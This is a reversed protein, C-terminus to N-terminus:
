KSTQSVRAGKVIAAVSQLATVWADTLGSVESVVGRPWSVTVGLVSIPDGTVPRHDHVFSDVVLPYACPVTAGLGDDMSDRFPSAGFRGGDNDDGGLDFRGLYNFEVSASGLGGLVERGRPNLYRLSGYSAGDGPVASRSRRAGAVLDRVADVSGSVVADFQAARTAVRIPHVDTLWGVVGVGDVGSTGVEDRGHGEVDLVFELEDGASGAGVWSTLAVTFTGLLIDDISGGVMTAGALLAATESESLTFSSRDMTAGVDIAPDLARIMPIQAGPAAVSVWHDLDALIADSHAHEYVAHAWRRFSNSEPAVADSSNDARGSVLDPLLVRWSVGDVVLHHLTILLEGPEGYGRRFWVLDMMRGDAPSLRAKAARSVTHVVTRVADDALGAIDQTSIWECPIDAPEPVILRTADFRARLVPHRRAAADVMSAIAGETLDAPVRLLVAQSIQEIAGDLEALWTVIPTPPVEGFPSVASHPSETPGDTPDAVEAALARVTRRTLVDRPSVDIGKSRLRAALEMSMISDGGLDFFDDDTGIDSVHLLDAIEACLRRELDNEPPSPALLPAQGEPLAALDLKGNSLLPFRDLISYATPVMYAPLREAIGSRLDAIDLTRGPEPIVHACLRDAGTPGRGTVVRADAVGDLTRVCHELEGLEVRHGRIKVQHDARGRYDLLGEQTWSVLDGTRYMRTGDAAFSDALFHRATLAPAGRYGRAVGPGGIYLEGVVGIPVPRLADDLVYARLGAVPRGIHPESTEETSVHVADVTAETPGYFNHLVVSNLSRVHDWLERSVAEGGVGLTGIESGLGARILHELLSPVVEVFDASVRRLESLLTNPDSVCERDFVHVAHGGFMWLQPQWSADFALSWAHGVDLQARGARAVAPDHVRARHGYYLNALGRHTVVVGKPVGTTGSTYILYVPADPHVRDRREDDTIGRRDDDSDALTSSDIIRCQGLEVAGNFLPNDVTRDAPGAVIAVPRANDVIRQTREAPADPEIPLYAAGSRMVAVISALTCASRTAPVIVVDEAGVGSRILARAIRNARASLEAFTLTTDPGTVAVADPTNACQADLVEVLTGGPCQSEEGVFETLIRQRAAGDVLSLGAVRGSGPTGISGLIAHLSASMTEASGADILDPRYEVVIRLRDGPFVTVAIPYHTMTHFDGVHVSFDASNIGSTDAPAFNEFVVLTDFLQGVGAIRQVDALGVHHYDLVDVTQQRLLGLVEAVTAHPPVDVRVPITNVFLGVMDASRDLGSPRGSVTSGFVVDSQGTVGALVVAWAAHVVESLTAGFEAAAGKLADTGAATLDVVIEEADVRSTRGSSDSVLCPRVPRNQATSRAGLVTRWVTESRVNDHSSLWRLYNDFSAPPGLTEGRYLRFLETGVIGMSWGDVLLHHLTLIVRHRTPSEDLVTARILLSNGVDFTRRDEAALARAHPGDLSDVFVRRVEIDRHHQLVAVTRGSQLTVFRSTLSPHRVLLGCLAAEFRSDDLEGTVEFNTTIVYIEDTGVAATVSQFVIGQQLSTAPRVDDVDIDAASLERRETEDVDMLPAVGRDVPVVVGDAASDDAAADARAAIAEVTRAAFVDVTTFVVGQRAALHVFSIAAISDGGLAFFDDDVAVDAPDVGALDAMVSAVVRETETRPAVGRSMNVPIRIRGLALRDLKGNPTVPLVPLASWAAPIMYDPLQRSLRSAIEVGISDGSYGALPVVFGTLRTREADDPVAIVAVDDVLGTAAVAAEVEALEIRFGRIKVQRDTRGIVDLLGGDVQRGRDGTRYMREGGSNEPDAVFRAATASSAGHYGRALQVGAVYVEGVVGPAVPVLFEDLIRLSSNPVARGVVSAPVPSDARDAVDYTAVDGVVESSGYSNTLRAAPCAQAISEVISSTLLEGSVIWHAVASVDSAAVDCLAAALSGVATIQDARHAATLRALAHADTFEDDDAVIVQQGALLGTLLETTGDIFSLSSKAIRVRPDGWRHVAWHLRNALGDRTGLVGKPTGTSGSTYILYATLAGHRATMFPQEQCNNEVETITIRAAGPALRDLVAATEPHVIVGQPDSDSLLFSIRDRPYRIDIPVVTAGVDLVALLAVVMDVGRPVAVAVRMEPGAGVRRLHASLGAVRSALEAYTVTGSGCVIAPDDASETFRDALQRELASVIMDPGAGLRDGTSESFTLVRAVPADPDLTLADLLEVFRAVAVAAVQTGIAGPRYVVFAWLRPDPGAVLALPFSMPAGLVTVEDVSADGDPVASPYNQYVVATDFLTRYPTTRSIEAMGLHRHEELDLHSSQIQELLDHVTVTPDTTVRVPVTNLLLGVMSEADPLDYPRVSAAMGFVVDRQSTMGSLVLAWALQIVVNVTVGAGKACRMVRDSLDDPIEADLRLPAGGSESPGSAVLTPAALGELHAAWQARAAEVDQAAVWGLYNGFSAAPPLGGATGGADYIQVLERVFVAESWGDMLSHHYTVSLRRGVITFRILPRRLLEFGAARDRMRIEEADAGSDAFEIEPETARPVVWVLSGNARQRLVAKLHPYRDLIATVSSTLVPVDIPARFTVVTQSLYPDQAPSVLSSQLYMGTQLATTPIVELIKSQGSTTNM